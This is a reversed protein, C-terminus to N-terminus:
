IALIPTFARVYNVPGNLVCDDIQVWSHAGFPMTQVGVVWTSHLGYISLFEVLVL